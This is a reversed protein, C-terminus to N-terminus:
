LLQQSYVHIIADCQSSMIGGAHIDNVNVKLYLSPIIDTGSDASYLADVISKFKTHRVEM